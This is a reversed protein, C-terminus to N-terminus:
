VNRLDDQMSCVEAQNMAVPTTGRQGSFEVVEPAYASQHLLSSMSEYIPLSSTMTSRYTGVTTITLKATCSTYYVHLNYMYILVCRGRLSGRRHRGLSHRTNGHKLWMRHLWMSGPKAVHSGYAPTGIVGVGILSIGITSGRAPPEPYTSGRNGRWVWTGVDCTDTCRCGCYPLNWM